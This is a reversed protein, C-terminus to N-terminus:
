KFCVSTLSIKSQPENLQQRQQQERRKSRQMIEKNMEGFFNWITLSRDDGATALINGKPGWMTCRVPSSHNMLVDVVRNMSALVLIEHSDLDTKNYRITYSVILEGSVKNFSLAHIHSHKDTRRYYSVIEKCPVNILYLSATRYEGVILESDTFPHWDIFVPGSESNEYVIHATLVHYNWITLIGRMEVTAIFRGDPSVKIVEIASKHKRALRYKFELNPTSYIIM